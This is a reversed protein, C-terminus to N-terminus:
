LVHTSACLTKASEDIGRLGGIRAYYDPNEVRLRTHERVGRCWKGRKKANEKGVKDSCSYM